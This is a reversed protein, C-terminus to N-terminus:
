QGLRRRLAENELRLREIELERKQEEQELAKQRAGTELGHQFARNYSTAFDMINFNQNGMQQCSLICNAFNASGNCQSQCSYSQAFALNAVALMGLGISQKKM